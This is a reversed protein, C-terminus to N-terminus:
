KKKRRVVRRIKGGASSAKKRRVRVMKKKPAAVADVSDGGHVYSCGAMPCRLHVNGMRDKKEILFSSGCLPCDIGYPKSWAMFDCTPDNCVYMDKGAPTRNASLEGRKCAPCPQGKAGKKKESYPESHHCAPLGTCAWFKGFRDDKLVMDRGCEPCVKTEVGSLEVPEVVPSSDVEAETLASREDPPVPPQEFVDDVVPSEEVVVDPSADEVEPEAPPADHAAPLAGGAIDGCNDEVEQELSEEVTQLPMSDDDSGENEPVMVDDTILSDAVMEDVVADDEKAEVPSIADFNTFGEAVGTMPQPQAGGQVSSGGSKIVNKSKRKIKPISTPVKVKVLPKGQMVLNQDFQKLAVDVRKRGSMVEELTQAYYASLNLGKMGPFARDLTSTVKLLKDTCRIEGAGSLVVYNHGLIQQFVSLISKEDDFGMERMEDCLSGIHYQAGGQSQAHHPRTADVVISDGERFSMPADEVFVAEFGYKFVSLFGESLLVLSNFSIRKGENGEVEFLVKRESGVADALQSAVSRAWILQYLQQLPAPLQAEAPHVSPDLPLIVGDGFENESRFEEGYQENVYDVLHAFFPQMNQRSVGYPSSILGGQGGVGDFLGQVGLVVDGPAIQFFRYADLVLDALTYLSPSAFVLEKDVQDVLAFTRGKVTEAVEKAQEGSDLFGDSSVGYVEALRGLLEHGNHSVRVEIEWKQQRSMRQVAMQGEALLSLMSLTSVSLEVGGPGQATGLLRALHSFFVKHFLNHQLYRVCAHEDIPEVMSLSQRILEDTVGALHLRHGQMTGHASLLLQDALYSIYEGEMSTDFCYYIDT